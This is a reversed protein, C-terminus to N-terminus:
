AAPPAVPLAFSFEAGGDDLNEVWIRGRHATVISSCIRLGVGLGQPKTTFFADFVRPLHEPAVGTGRDRVSVCVDAGRVMTRVVIQREDTPRDHMADIANVVLNLIVQQLQVPDAVVAPLAEDFEFTLRVHRLILESRM